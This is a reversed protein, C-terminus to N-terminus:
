NEMRFTELEKKININKDLEELKSVANEKIREWLTFVHKNWAAKEDAENLIQLLLQKKDKNVYIENYYEFNGDKTMIEYDLYEGEGDYDYSIVEGEEISDTEEIYYLVKTGDAYIENM